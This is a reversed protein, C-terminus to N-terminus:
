KGRLFVKGNWEIENNSNVKIIEKNMRLLSIYKYTLEPINIKFVNNEYTNIKYWSTVIERCGLKNFVISNNPYIDLHILDIHASKPKYLSIRNKNIIYYLSREFGAQESLDLRYYISKVDDIFYLYKSMEIPNIIMFIISDPNNKDYSSNINAELYDLNYFEPTTLYLLERKADYKYEGFAITDCCINSFWHDSNTREIIYFKNTSFIIEPNGRDKPIYKQVLLSTDFNSHVSCSVGILFQIIIIFIKGVQM